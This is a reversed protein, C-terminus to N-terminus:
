VVSKRDAGSSGEGIGGAARRLSKQRKIKAKQRKIKKQKRSAASHPPDGSGCGAGQGAMRGLGLFGVLFRAQPGPMPTLIVGSALIIRFRWELARM